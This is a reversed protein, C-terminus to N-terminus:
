KNGEERVGRGNVRFEERGPDRAGLGAEAGARRPRPQRRAGRCLCSPPRHALAPVSAAAAPCPGPRSTSCAHDSTPRRSPCSPDPPRPPHGLEFCARDPTPDATDAGGRQTLAPGPSSSVTSASHSSRHSRCRCRARPRTRERTEPCLFGM